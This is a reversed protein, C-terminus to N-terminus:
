LEKKITFEEEISKDLAEITQTIEKKTICFPFMLVIVNGIPRTLVGKRKLHKCIRIGKQEELQFPRKTKWDQVLEIGAIMGTHRIDGVQNHRWLQQLANGFHAAKEMRCSEASPDELLELSALAAASGLPNATYSHGHFFSKFEHYEGLFANYVKETTLTAAMPLYGGTLGKALALFDPQVGERHSAFLGPGGTRGFGTMVEDCILQIKESRLLKTVRKLWGEPHIVMGAVGQVIPEVVMAAYPRNSKGASQIKEEVKNVCEWQCRRYLRADGREPKARNFPCRYCYPSMVKDTAFLLGKFSSHFLGIQGLSVAGITDGHYAQDLSLYRPRKIDRMRRAFEFSLKLAVELATSGNDSYFVRTLDPEAETAPSVPAPMRASQILKEMLLTSPVNSLGLYSAHAIQKLQQKIAKDIHRNRHGHVNTWISANADIYSKGHIDTLWAGKGSAIVTPEEKVWDQMQTFPHWSHAHDLQALRHRKM